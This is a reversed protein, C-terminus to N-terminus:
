HSNTKFHGGGVDGNVGPFAQIWGTGDPSEVIRHKERLRSLSRYFTAEAVGLKVQVAHKWDATKPGNIALVEWVKEDKENLPAVTQSWYYKGTITSKALFQRYVPNGSEDKWGLRIGRKVARLEYTNKDETSHLVLIARAWNSWESSGFASYAFDDDKWKERDASPKTTHSVLIAGCNHETLLPNLGNRLFGGVEGQSSAEAGLFSLAPDILLLDPKRRNLAPAVVQNLFTAGTRATETLVFLNEKALALEAETLQLHHLAGVRFSELDGADNEAQILLIKLPKAPTIGFQSRGCSWAMAAQATLVSKGVGTQAVLLGGGKRCLYRGPGLLEDAPDAKPEFFSIDMSPSSSSEIAKISAKWDEITPTRGLSQASVRRHEYDIARRELWALVFPNDPLTRLVELDIDIEKVDAKLWDLIAHTDENAIFNAATKKAFILDILDAGISMDKAIGHIALSEWFQAAFQYIYNFDPREFDPRFSRNDPLVPCLRAKMMAYFRYSKLVSLVLLHQLTEINQSYVVQEFTIRNYSRKSSEGNVPVHLNNFINMDDTEVPGAILM